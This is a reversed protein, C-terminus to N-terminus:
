KRNDGNKEDTVSACLTYAVCYFYDADTTTIMLATTKLRGGELLQGARLEVAAKLRTRSSVETVASICVLSHLRQSFFLM